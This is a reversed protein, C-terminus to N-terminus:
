EHPTLALSGPNAPFILAACSGSGNIFDGYADARDPRLPSNHSLSVSAATSQLRAEPEIWAIRFGVNM